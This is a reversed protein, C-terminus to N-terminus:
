TSQNNKENIIATATATLIKLSSEDCQSLLRLLKQYTSDADHSDPFVCEDASINLTRCIHYFNEISPSCRGRELDKQFSLSYDLLEACTAQTLHMKKRAKKLVRSFVNADNVSLSMIMVEQYYNLAM